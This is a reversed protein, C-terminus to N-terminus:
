CSRTVIFLRGGALLGGEPSMGCGVLLVLSSVEVVFATELVADLFSLQMAESRLKKSPGAGGGARRILEFSPVEALMILVSAGVSATLIRFSVVYPEM